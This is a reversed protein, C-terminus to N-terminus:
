IIYIYTVKARQVSADVFQFYFNGKNCYLSSGVANSDFGLKGHLNSHEQSILYGQDTEAITWVKAESSCKTDWGSGILYGNDAHITYGDTTVAIEFATEPSASLTANGSTNLKVYAGGNVAQIYYTKTLDLTIDAWAVASVLSVLAFLTHIRKM